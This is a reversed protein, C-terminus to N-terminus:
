QEKQESFCYDYPIYENCLSRTCHEECRILKAHGENAVLTDPESCLVDGMKYRRHICDPKRDPNPKPPTM